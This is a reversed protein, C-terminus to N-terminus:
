DKKNIQEMLEDLKEQIKKECDNSHQIVDKDDFKDM